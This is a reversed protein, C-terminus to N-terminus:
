EVLIPKKVPSGSSLTLYSSGLNSSGSFKLTRAVIVTYQATNGNGGSFTIGTNPFYLTGELNMTGGGAFTNGPFITITRDQFFLISEMPGSTPATFHASGNISIEGYRHTADYTDYFTVGSGSLTTNACASLGGGLRIYSGPNSVVSTSQGSIKIGGCYVGPYLSVTGSNIRLNTYGCTASFTPPPRDALPDAVPPVGTTPQPTMTSGSYGGTVDISAATVSSNTSVVFALASTSNVTIGCRSVSVVAGGTAWFAQYVSPDLCYICNASFGMGGVARARVTVTDFGLARLIGTPCPKQVVVEVFKPSGSHSGTVPPASVTVTVGAVGDAFGNRSADALAASAITTTSSKRAIEQAGAVAAADAATQMRRKVDLYLGGEAALGVFGILITLLLAVVILIQGSAQRPHKV